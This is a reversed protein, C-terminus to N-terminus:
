EGLLANMMAVISPGYNVATAWGYGPTPNEKKGLWEVYCAGGKPSVLNFRPDVCPYALGGEGEESAYAFLHQIQARVGERVTEFSAGAAGGGVAGLGAFNNQEIKVDGGYRLWGTEKMAQTFAVEARIGQAEAEEYYITCFDKLTPADTTKYYEPYSAGSSLYYNVMQEVTAESKGMIPTHSEETAAGDPGYYTGSVWQLRAMNGNSLFYYDKGGITYEGFVMAGDAGYYVTRGDDLQLFGTQMAGNSPKFYYWKGSIRQEDFQMIGDADYYVTKDKLEILGTCMEGTRPDFYYWKGDINYEGFVKAGDEGYYFMSDGNEVFGTQMAGNGPKFYYYKGDIEIEGYVIAGDSGYYVTKDELEVFGTQMIGSDPDFYYWKNNIKNEGLFMAGTGTSFYYKNKGITQWGHKMQGDSGYYVTKNELDVLGTQMAGDSPKFYYWQGDIRYEGFIMAGDPGYYVTRGDDLQLLGTQMAGDSPRFYYWQGNVRYEGFIMAGDPGYYVTRGDDLQFFGTQMAGNSPQFYYWKGNLRYEGFVIAGDPGYCVTKDDLQVLGTQMAGNSPKFYYWQGDIRYEGFVMMGDPDYYVTKDAFQHWGTIMAGNNDPDFYYWANGIKKEGYVKKNGEYYYRNGNEDEEWYGKSLGLYKAIGKADAEGLKKLGAETKLFNNVDSSNTLFAHEVIIGPINHEKCYIQVSFYDSISGDDYTDGVTTDKKYISRRELGLATLEDLIAEALAEGEEAVEPRWSKNPIIIEAGKASSAVSANLHLSVYIEAGAKAAAEVRQKICSGANTCNYPCEATTRTMYVTVGSYEELAQKCYNAIKLTLDEERLGFGQAGADNKDHGPDLAVVINGSSKAYTETGGDLSYTTIGNAAANQTSVVNLADAISDQAEAVGNENITVVSAEIGLAATESVETGDIPQLEEFGDYIENISFEANIGETDLMITKKESGYLNLSEVHYTGTYADGSYYKEFLYLGEAQRAVNWEERNGAEDEVTLTVREAGTIVDDFSFVIRQTAPTELCPSEIYTFRITRTSVSSEQAEESGEQIEQPEIKNEGSSKQDKETADTYDTTDQEIYNESNTENESVKEDEVSEDTVTEQEVEQTEEIEEAYVMATPTSGLMICALMAGAITRMFRSKM